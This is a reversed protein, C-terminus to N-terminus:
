QVGGQPDLIRIVPCADESLMRVGVVSLQDLPISVLPGVAEIAYTLVDAIHQAAVPREIKGNPHRFTVLWLRTTHILHQDLEPM